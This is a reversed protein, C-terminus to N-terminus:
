ARKVSGRPARVYARADRPDILWDRGVRQAPLLGLRCLRRVEHPSVGLLAAAQATTIPTM